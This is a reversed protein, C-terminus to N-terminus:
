AKLSDHVSGYEALSQFPDKASRWLERKINSDGTRDGTRDEAKAESSQGNWRGLEPLKSLKRM